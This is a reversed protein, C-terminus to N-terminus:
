PERQGRLVISEIEGATPDRGVSRYELLEPLEPLKELLSAPM